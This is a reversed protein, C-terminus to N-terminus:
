DILKEGRGQPNDHCFGREWLVALWEFIEQSSDMWTRYVNGNTTNVSNEPSSSSHLLLTMQLSFYDYLVTDTLIHYHHYMGYSQFQYVEAAFCIVCFLFCILFHM